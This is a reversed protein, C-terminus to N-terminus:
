WSGGPQQKLLVALRERKPPRELEEEEESNGATELVPEGDGAGVLHPGREDIKHVLRPYHRVWHKHYLDAITGLVCLILLSALLGSSTVDCM